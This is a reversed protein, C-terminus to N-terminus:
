ARQEDKMGRQLRLENQIVSEHLSSNPRSLSFLHISPLFSLILALLLFLVDSHPVYRPIFKSTSAITYHRFDFFHSSPWALFICFARFAIERQTDIRITSFSIGVHLGTLFSDYQLAELSTAYLSDLHHQFRRIM